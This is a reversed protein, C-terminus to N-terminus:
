LRKLHESIIESPSADLYQRPRIYSAYTASFEAISTPQRGAVVVNEGIGDSRETRDRYILCPIGLLASEEQTGGSDTIVFSAGSLLNLFDPQALKGIVEVNEATRIGPLLGLERLRSETHTDIVLKVSIRRGLHCIQSFTETVLKARSLFETRHLSVVCYPSEAEFHTENALQTLAVEYSTNHVTFVVERKSRLNDLSDMSPAYHVDSIADVIRRSLEEPFPDLISQSRLGAEIHAIRLRLIKGALSGLLTSLTDGHVVVIPQPSDSGYKTSRIRSLYRILHALSVVFWPIANIPSRLNRLYRRDLSDNILGTHDFKQLESEQQNTSVVQAEKCLSNLREVVPKVKILEATTGIVFIFRM